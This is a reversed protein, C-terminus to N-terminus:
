VEGYAERREEVMRDLQLKDLLEKRREPTERRLVLSEWWLARRTFTLAYGNGLVRPRLSRYRSLWTERPITLHLSRNKMIEISCEIDPFQPHDLSVALKLTKGQARYIRAWWYGGDPRRAHMLGAPTEGDQREQEAVRVEVFAPGNGGTETARPTRRLSRLISQDSQPNVEM